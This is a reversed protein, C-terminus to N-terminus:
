NVAMFVRPVEIGLMEAIALAGGLDKFTWADLANDTWDWNGSQTKYLWGYADCYINM